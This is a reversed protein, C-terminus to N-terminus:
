NQIDNNNRISESIPEPKGLWYGQCNDIGIDRISDYILESSVHEAITKLNALHSIDNIANIFSRSIPDSIINQILSGDLKVYDVPLSRLYDITSYGTGFDDLAFKFGHERLMRILAIATDIEGISITETIEFCIRKCDINLKKAQDIIYMGIDANAISMGSLNIFYLLNQNDSAVYEFVTKVVWKDIDPMLNFHEALPLFDGPSIYDGSTNRLRLLVECSWPRELSTCHFIPQSVLYFNNESQARRLLDLMVIDSRLKVIDANSKDYVILRNRGAAKAKYCAGDAQMLSETFDSQHDIVVVGTSASIHYRQGAWRFDMQKLQNLFFEVKKCGESVNHKSLLVVFEDGGMRCIQADISFVDSMVQAIRCLLKDGVFHGCSDNVVKFQDLDTYCLLNIEGPIMHRIVERVHSEFGTRNYLGTLSDHTAQYDLETILIEMKHHQQKLNEDQTQIRELMFNFRETLEGTEDESTKKARLTFDAKKSVQTALHSLTYIPVTIARQVYLVILTVLGLALLSYMIANRIYLNQIENLNDLKAYLLLYGTTTTGNLKIVTDLALGHHGNIYIFEHVKRSRSHFDDLFVEPACLNDEQTRNYRAFLQGNKDYMCADTVIERTRLSQLNEGAVKVDNFVLAANSRNGAIRALVTLEQIVYQKTQTSMFEFIGINALILAVSASFLVISIMKWRIPLRTFFNRM